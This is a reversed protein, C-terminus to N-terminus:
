VDEDSDEDEDSDANGNPVPPPPSFLLGPMPPPPPPGESETISPMPPPVPAGFSPMPPPPPPGNSPASSENTQDEDDSDSDSDPKANSNILAGNDRPTDMPTRPTVAASSDGDSPAPAEPDDLLDPNLGAGRMQLKLQQEHVGMRLRRFFPAYDPHDKIKLGGQSEEQNEEESSSDSGSNNGNMPPRSGGMPPPPPPPMTPMEEGEPAMPQTSSVSGSVPVSGELGPISALKAELINMTIELREIERSVKMLKDECLSSFKNLFTTTNVIFHNIIPVIKQHSLPPVKHFDIPTQM